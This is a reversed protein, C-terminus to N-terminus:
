QSPLTLILIVEDLMIYMRKPRLSSPTLLGTRKPEGDSFAFEGVEGFDEVAEVSKMISDSTRAITDGADQSAAGIDFNTREITPSSTSSCCAAEHQQQLDWYDIAPPAEYEATRTAVFDDLASTSREDNFMSNLLSNSQYEDLIAQEELKELKEEDEEDNTDTMDELKDYVEDDSAPKSNEGDAASATSPEAVSPDQSLLGLQFAQYESFELIDEVFPPMDETSPVAFRLKKQDKRGSQGAQHTVDNNSLSRKLTLKQSRSRLLIGARSAGSPAYRRPENDDDDSDDTTESAGDAEGDAEEQESTPEGSAHSPSVRHRIKRNKTLSKTVKPRTGFQKKSSLVNPTPEEARRRGFANMGSAGHKRYRTSM